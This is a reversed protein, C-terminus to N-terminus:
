HRERSDERSHVSASRGDAAWWTELRSGYLTSGAPQRLRSWVALWQKPTHYLPIAYHGSLLVRDLARVASVFDPRTQAALLAGIMADAAPSRVGAYNFSGEESASAQSWRFNQENGPSLSSSWIAQMMDFDFSTTRRQYQASDILRVQAAIGIQHLANAYALMVREQERTVCIMEFRFPAGTAKDTMVGDRLEYGAENLLAIAQKRGERNTGAGDTAPQSFTGDMIGPLLEHEYPALLAREHEDAPRGHSSLESRDFYSETRAYLGRYLTKNSWEFDFVRTLAERVRKDAFLPRRTNFALAVMPAPVGVSFELKKVLGEQVAPFDYAEAWKVADIPESDGQVDFLGKRFAEMM